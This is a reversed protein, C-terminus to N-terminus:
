LIQKESSNLLQPPCFDYSAIGRYQSAPVCFHSHVVPVPSEPPTRSSAGVSPPEAIPLVSPLDTGPPEQPCVALWAGLPM